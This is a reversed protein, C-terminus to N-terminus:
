LPVYPESPDAHQERRQKFRFGCLLIDDASTPIAFGKHVKRHTGWAPLAEHFVKDELWRLVM